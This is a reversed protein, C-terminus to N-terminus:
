LNDFIKEYSNINKKTFRNLKDKSLFVKKLSQNYNNLSENIKDALDNENNIQYFKGGKGDLLIEDIGGHSKSSIVPLNHNIAEVVANPFGEFLSSCIYLHSKRLLRIKEKDSYNIIKCSIKNKKILTEYEHKLNGNGLINLFVYNNKLIKIANIQDILNKEWSLRGITLINIKSQKNIKKKRKKLIKNITLPYIHKCKKKTVKSFDNAIKKSNCIIEDAQKYSFKIILKVISKKLFDIFNYYLNLEQYPTREILILKFKYIIKFYLVFLANAYNINSIIITNLRDFDKLELYIKKMSFFTSKTNLEIVKSGLKLFEKKYFNKTLSIINIIYKKKDLNKCINLISKGAGGSSFNPLFFILKKKKM